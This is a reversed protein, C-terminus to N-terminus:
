SSLCKTFGWDYIIIFLVGWPRYGSSFKDESVSCFAKLFALPNWRPMMSGIKICKCKNTALTIKQEVTTKYLHISYIYFVYVKCIQTLFLWTCRKNSCHRNKKITKVPVHFCVGKQLKNFYVQCSVLLHRQRIRNYGM